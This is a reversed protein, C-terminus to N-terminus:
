FHIDSQSAGPGLVMRQGVKLWPYSFGGPHHPTISVFTQRNPPCGKTRFAPRPACWGAWSLNTRLRFLVGFSALPRSGLPFPWGEGIYPVGGQLLPHRIYSFLFFTVTVCGPMALKNLSFLATPGHLLRKAQKRQFLLHWAWMWGWGGPDSM